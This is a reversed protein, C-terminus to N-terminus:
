ELLRWQSSKNSVKVKDTVYDNLCSEVKCKGDNEGYDEEITASKNSIGPEVSVIKGVDFLNKGVDFLNFCQTTM